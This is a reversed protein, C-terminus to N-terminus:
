CVGEKKLRERMRYVRSNITGEPLGLRRGIEAQSYGDVMLKVISEEISDLSSLWSVHELGYDDFDGENVHFEPSYEVILDPHPESLRASLRARGGKEKSVLNNAITYFYTSLAGKSPDHNKIAAMYARSVEYHWEHFDLGKKSMYSIVLGYNDYSIDGVKERRALFM